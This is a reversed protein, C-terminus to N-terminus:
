ADSCIQLLETRCYRVKWDREVIYWFILEFGLWLASFLKVLVHVEPIHIYMVGPTPTPRLALLVVM